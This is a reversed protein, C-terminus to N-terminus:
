SIQFCPSRFGFYCKYISYELTEVTSYKNPREFYFKKIVIFNRVDLFCPEFFELM